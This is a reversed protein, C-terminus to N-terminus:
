IYVKPYLLKPAHLREILLMDKILESWCQLFMVKLQFDVQSGEFKNKHLTLVLYFLEAKKTDFKSIM